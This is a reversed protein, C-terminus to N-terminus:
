YKIFIHVIFVIIIVIIIIVDIIEAGRWHGRAAAHLLATRICM